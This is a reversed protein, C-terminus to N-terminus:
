VVYSMLHLLSVTLICNYGSIITFEGSVPGLAWGYQYAQMIPIKWTITNNICGSSSTVALNYHWISKKHTRHNLM